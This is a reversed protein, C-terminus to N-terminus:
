RPNIATGYGTIAQKLWELLSKVTETAQSVSAQINQNITTLQSSCTECNKGNTDFYTNLKKRDSDSSYSIMPDKSDFLQITMGQSVGNNTLNKNISGIYGNMMSLFKESQEKVKGENADWAKVDIIYKKREDDTAVRPPVALPNDPDVPRPYSKASWDIEDLYSVGTAPDKIQQLVGKDGKYKDM